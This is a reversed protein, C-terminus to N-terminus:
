LRSELINLIASFSDFKEIDDISVVSGFEDIIVSLLTVSAMSDWNDYESKNKNEDLQEGDLIVDQFIQELKKKISM